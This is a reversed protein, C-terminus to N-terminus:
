LSCKNASRVINSITSISVKIKKINRFYLAIEKYTMGEERMELVLKTNAHIKNYRDKKRCKKAYTLARSIENRNVLQLESSNVANKSCIKRSVKWGNEYILKLFFTIIDKDSVRQSSSEESIKQAFKTLIDLRVHHGQSAFWRFLNEHDDASISLEENILDYMDKRNSM